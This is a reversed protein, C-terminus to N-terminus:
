LGWGPCTRLRGSQCTKCPSGTSLDALFEVRRGPTTPGAGHCSRIERGTLSPSRVPSGTLLACRRDLQMLAQLHCAASLPAMTVLRLAQESSMTRSTPWCVVLRIFSRASLPM